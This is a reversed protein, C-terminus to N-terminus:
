LFQENETDAVASNYRLYNFRILEPGVSCGSLLLVALVCWAHRRPYNMFGGSKNPRKVKWSQVETKPLNGRNVKAAIRITVTIISIRAPASRIKVAGLSSTLVMM